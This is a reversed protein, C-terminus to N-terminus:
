FYNLSDWINSKLLLTTFIKGTDQCGYRWDVCFLIWHELFLVFLAMCVIEFLVFLLNQKYIPLWVELWRLIVELKRFISRMISYVQNWLRNIFTKHTDQCGYKWDICFFRWHELLLVSLVMCGIKIVSFLLKEWYRPFRVELRRFILQLTRLISHIIAYICNWLRHIFSKARINAVTGGILM